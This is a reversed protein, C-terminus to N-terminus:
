RVVSPRGLIGVLIVYELFRSSVQQAASINPTSLSKRLQAAVSGTGSATRGAWFCVTPLRPLGLWVRM